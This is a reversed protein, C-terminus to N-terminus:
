GCTRSSLNNEQGSPWYSLQRPVTCSTIQGAASCNVGARIM